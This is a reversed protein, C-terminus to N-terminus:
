DTFNYEDLNFAVEKIAWGSATTFLHHPTKKFKKTKRLAHEVQALFVRPLCFTRKKMWQYLAEYLATTAHDSRSGNGWKALITKLTSKFNDDTM